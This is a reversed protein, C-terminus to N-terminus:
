EAEATITADDLGNTPGKGLILTGRKRSNDAHVSSGHDVGFTIVNKGIVKKTDSASFPGHADFVTGSGSYSYKDPDDAKTMKIASFLSKGSTFKSDLNLLM